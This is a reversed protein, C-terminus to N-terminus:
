VYKSFSDKQKLLKVLGKVEEARDKSVILLADGTDIIILNQVGVTAILQDDFQILNNNSDLNVHQGGNSGQSIVVNGDKDKKSLDYIVKWDGIDNWGFDGPIVVMEKTKESIAYDISNEEVNKYAKKLVSSQNATGLAQYVDYIHRYIGPAHAKFESLIAKTQYVYNNANWLYKKTKLFRKATALDPKETFGKMEYIPSQSSTSIKKGFHIYGLGTHPFQPVIGVAVLKNSNFATKAAYKLVQLYRKPKQILHDTALNIVVAEPDKKHIWAAAVGMAMATNKKEPEAIINKSPILPVQKQIDKKYKKNTIVFIRSVPVVDRVRKVTQQFLTLRGFISAFQKPTKVRSRPWLRTGTGGALLCVYTHKLYEPKKSPKAM